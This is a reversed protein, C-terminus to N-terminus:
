VVGELTENKRLYKRIINYLPKRVKITIFTHLEETALRPLM